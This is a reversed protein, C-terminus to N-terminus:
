ATNFHVVFENTFPLTLISGNAPNTSVVAIHVPAYRFTANFAQIPSEDSAALIAGAAIAMQQQGPTSVPSTNYHFTLTTADTFVVSDAAIGNVTLANAQVSNPDYAQSLHVVFDTPAVGTVFDGNAPTSSGVSFGLSWQQNWTDWNPSGGPGAWENTAWFSGDVPDVSTFSYDGARGFANLFATGAKALVPTQMTGAADGASRGTVYMSMYETSSSESYNLGIQGA